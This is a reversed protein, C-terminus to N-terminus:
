GRDPFALMAAAASAPSDASASAMCCSSRRTSKPSSGSVVQHSTAPAPPNSPRTRPRQGSRTSSPSTSPWISRKEVIWVSVSIAVPLISRSAIKRSLRLARNPSPRIAAEPTKSRAATSYGSMSNSASQSLQSARSIM